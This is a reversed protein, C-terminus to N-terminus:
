PNTPCDFQRVLGEVAEDSLYYKEDVEEELLDKLVKGLPIPEPFEYNGSGLWSMMFTRNRNQPIGYDKANLDQWVSTYGLKTLHSIWMEFDAINKKSHVAPVNEMLLFQPLNGNYAICEDLLREVEWLLGSRTKTEESSQNEKNFGRGKGALSIDQCPFSYTLLYAYKDTDEIRLDSAHLKTIDTPTFNTGHVANYSQVAFRDIECYNWVEFDAGLNELAKSQAGIGGFLEILRIPNTIKIPSNGYMEGTSFSIQGKIEDNM